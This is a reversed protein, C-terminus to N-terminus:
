TEPSLDAQCFSSDSTYANLSPFFVIQQNPLSGGRWSVCGVLRELAHQVTGDVQGLEAPFDEPSWRRFLLSKELGFSSAMFMGGIPFPFREVDLLRGEQSEVFEPPVHAKSGAWDFNGPPFLQLDVPYLLTANENQRLLDLNNQFVDLNELLNVWLLNAWNEGTSKDVHLSKKTHVHIVFRFELIEDQFSFLMPGFNRGRNVSQRVSGVNPFRKSLDVLSSNISADTCSFNFVVNPFATSYCDLIKEIRPLYEPYYVHIFAGVEQPKPGILSKTPTLVTEPRWNAVRRSTRIQHVAKKAKRKLEQFDGSFVLAVFQSFM